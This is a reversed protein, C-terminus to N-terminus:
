DGGEGMTEWHGMKAMLKRKFSTQQHFNRRVNHQLNVVASDNRSM